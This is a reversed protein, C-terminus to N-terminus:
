PQEEAVIAVPTGDEVLEQGMSIVATGAPIDGALLERWGATERDAQVPVMRARGKEVVFVVAQGGRQVVAASPVGVAERRDMVVEVQAMCGPAVGPPPGAVLCRVEFTRLRSDVTPSKYSATRLGLDIGNVDVRMPTQGATVRAYYEAPLFVSIELVSLDDIRVVPEGAGAMEGPEKFRKSVRGSIPAIVLSDALDKEGIALSLKAQELQAERLAVLAELDKVAATAARYGTEQKELLQVPIANQRVLERYRALDREAQDKEALVQELRAQTEALSCEAVILAQRAVAVAKTLKLSDTQFLQTQGAVVADGEEVYIADLPGPIRASILAYNKAAVNGAISIKEEFVMQKAATLVVPIQQEAAPQQNAGSGAPAKEAQAVLRYVGAAGGGLVVLGLVILAARAPKGRPGGKRHPQGPRDSGLGKEDMAGEAAIAAEPLVPLKDLPPGAAGRRPKTLM